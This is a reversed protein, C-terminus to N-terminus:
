ERSSVSRETKLGDNDTTQAKAFYASLWVTLQPVSIREQFKIGIDSDKQWIVRGIIDGLEPVSLTLKSGIEFLHRTKIRIGAPSIDGIEAKVLKFGIRLNIPQQMRVRPLRAPRDKKQITLNALLETVNIEKDFQIGVAAGKRWRISGTLEVDDTLAVAATRGLEFSPHVEVMVGNGSINKIFGWGEAMGSKIKALRFITIQRDSTRRDFDAEEQKDTSTGFEANQINNIM